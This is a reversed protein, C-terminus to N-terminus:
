PRPFFRDGRKLPEVRMGELEAPDSAACGFIAEEFAHARSDEGGEEVKRLTVGAKDIKQTAPPFAELAIEGGERSQGGVHGRHFDQQTGLRPFEVIM